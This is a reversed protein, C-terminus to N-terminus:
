EKDKKQIIPFGFALLLKHAEEDNDANTTISINMGRVQDIKDYDIEPFIIQETLGFSYNGNGDFSKNSLGTFDKIRPIAISVLRDFFEYMRNKRLTVMLGVSDGKRINFNSIAKKAKTLVPKQGTIKTIDNVTNEIQKPDDKIDNFGVSITIATIRPIDMINKYGFEKKMYPIIEKRYKTIFRPTLKTM